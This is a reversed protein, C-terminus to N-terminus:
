DETSIFVRFGVQLPHLDKYIQYCVQFGHKDYRVKRNAVKFIENLSLNINGNSWMLRTDLLKELPHLMGFIESLVAM